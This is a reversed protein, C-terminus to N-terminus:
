KFRVPTPCLVGGDDDMTIFIRALPVLIHSEVVTPSLSEILQNGTDLSELFAARMPALCVVM